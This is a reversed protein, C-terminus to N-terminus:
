LLRHHRSFKQTLIVNQGLYTSSFMQLSAEGGLITGGGPHMAITGNRLLLSMMMMEVVSWGVVMHGGGKIVAWPGFQVCTWFLAV